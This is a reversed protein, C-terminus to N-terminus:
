SGIVSFYLNLEDIRADDLPRLDTQRVASLQVKASFEAVEFRDFAQMINEGTVIIGDNQLLMAPSEPTFLCATRKPESYNLGYPVLPLQHLYIYSEPMLRCDLHADGLTFAMLHPPQANIIAGIGPQYYYVLEHLFVARSPVKGKEKMSRRILVLDDVDILRRDRGYPTILFSGDSLRASLTGQGSTFLHHKVARQVMQCMERRLTLEESSHSRPSFESLRTTHISRALEIDAEGLMHLPGLRRALLESRAAFELTEFIMYAQSISEAAICVGHNEMIVATCGARIESALHEGLEESGQRAYAAKGIMGCTLSTIPILNMSPLQNMVSFTMLAPSHAHLVARISQRATYIARHFMLESTPRRHGTQSGDPHLCVIDDATLRGKDIGGPTVWLDGNEELVSLNSGSMTTLGSNYIRTMITVLQDAPHMLEMRM